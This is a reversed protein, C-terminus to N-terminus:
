PEALKFQCVYGLKETCPYKFWFKVGGFPEHWNFCKGLKSLVNAQHGWLDIFEKSYPNAFDCENKCNSNWVWGNGNETM